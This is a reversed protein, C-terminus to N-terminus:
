VLTSIWMINKKNRWCFMHQQYENSTGWQPVELSYWLRHKQLFNLFINFIQPQFFLVFSSIRGSYVSAGATPYRVIFSCFEVQYLHRLRLRIPDRIYTHIYMQVCSRFVSVSYAGPMMQHPPMFSFAKGPAINM